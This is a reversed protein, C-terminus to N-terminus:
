MSSCDKLSGIWDRLLAVGAEDVSNRYPNMQHADNVTMRRIIVSREPAAPALLRGDPLGFNAVIPYADCVGTGALTKVVRYDASGYGGGGPQHCFSCNGHLYSRARATLSASSDSPNALAPLTSPYGPLGNRLAGVSALTALQNAWRGSAAFYSVRNLQALELGISRLTPRTHCHLCDGRDPYTWKVGNALTRSDSDTLLEADTQADNWRYSWGSWEGSSHRMMMRTEIMKTGDRFHKLLVSGSPLELRGDGGVWIQGGKPLYLYREKCVSADTYLPSNVTYPFAGPAAKQPNTPDVCGTLSLFRSPPTFPASELRFIRGPTGWGGLSLLYVTGRLDQAFSSVSDFPTESALTSLMYRPAAGMHNVDVGWVNGQCFDAYLFRDTLAPVESGRYVLGGTVSCGASHPYEAVPPEFGTMDCGVDTTLVGDVCHNGERVGWGYNKGKQVRDIEEYSAAGVDGVWLDGTQSDFSFRWPNRFGLAWIEPAAQTADFPNDKPIVYSMGPLPRGDVDIRLFKGLLSFPDQANLSPTDDDDGVGIYLMGDPGFLAGGGNHEDHHKPISLLVEETAPDFLHDSGSKRQFRSLTWMSKLGPSATVHNYVVYVEARTPHFALQLLGPEFSARVVKTLDLAVEAVTDGERFTKVRGIQEVVYYRTADGPRQTLAVPQVFDLSPFARVARVAQPLADGLPPHCTENDALKDLGTSVPAPPRVNCQTLREKVESPQLIGDGRAAGGSGDDLGTQLEIGGFECVCGPELRDVHSLASVSDSQCIVKRQTIEGEQLVGDKAVGEGKGDDYGIVVEIGGGPCVAGRPVTRTDLLISPPPAPVAVEPVAMPPSAATQTSSSDVDPRQCALLWLSCLLLWHPQERMSSWREQQSPQNPSTRDQALSMGTFAATGAVDRSGM